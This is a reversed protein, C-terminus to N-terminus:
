DNKRIMEDWCEQCRGGVTLEYVLEGCLACEEYDGETGCSMCRYGSGTPICALESCEPCSKVEQDLGCKRDEYFFMGAVIEEAVVSGEAEFGCFACSAAGDSYLTDGGPISYIARFNGAERGL